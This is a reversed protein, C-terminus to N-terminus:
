RSATRRTPRAPPRCDLGDLRGRHHGGRPDPRGDGRPLSLMLDSDVPDYRQGLPPTSGSRRSSRTWASPAPRTPSSRCSASARHEKDRLLNRLLRAFAMTTSVEQGGSGSAFEGFVDDGPATSRSASSSAARRRAASSRRAAGAPVPDGPLRARPPLLAGGQAADDPIPLELRDRFVRLEDDNLKKAQHTVNRAEVGAGLTWGKVTKALIVTPAGNPETAAPTPRTSRATTTAAAACARSSTTPCTSSWRRAAASRRRLLARPHLRRPEVSYKQYEGDLTENM